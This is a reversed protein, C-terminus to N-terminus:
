ACWRRGNARRRWTSPTSSRAGSSSRRCSLASRSRACGLAQKPPGHEGKERVPAATAEELPEPKEDEAADLAAVAAAAEAIEKRAKLGRKRVNQIGAEGKPKGCAEWAARPDMGQAVQYM